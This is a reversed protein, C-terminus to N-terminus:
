HIQHYNKKIMQPHITDEGTATNNQQKIATKLQRDTFPKNYPPEEEKKM